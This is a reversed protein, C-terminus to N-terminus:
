SPIVYGASSLFVGTAVAILATIASDSTEVTFQQPLASFCFCNGGDTVSIFLGHLGVLRECVALWGSMAEPCVAGLVSSSHEVKDVVVM